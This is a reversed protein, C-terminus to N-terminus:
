RASRRLNRMRSRSAFNVAPNSSTNVEVPMSIMLVGGRAGRAFAIASRQTPVARAFAGVPHQDEALAVKTGYRQTISMWCARTVRRLIRPPTILSYECTAYGFSSNELGV